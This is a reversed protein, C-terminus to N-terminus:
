EPPKRLKRFLWWCCWTIAAGIASMILATWAADRSTARGESLFSITMAGGCLSCIGFGAMALALVVLVIARGASTAM